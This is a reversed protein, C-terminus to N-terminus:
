FYFAFKGAWRETAFLRAYEVGAKIVFLKVEAGILLEASGRTATGENNSTYQPAFAVVGDAKMDGSAHLLGLGVYPAVIKFDYGALVTLGHVWGDYDYTANVGNVNQTADVHAQTSQAKIALGIPLPFLESVTWKVGLSYTHVHFSSNGVRPLGALEVTLGFPVSLAGSLEAGPLSRLSADPEASRVLRDLNPTKTTTGVLGVEFGFLHGLTSHGSVSTHTFDASLDDTVRAFDGPTLDTLKFNQARASPASALGALMVFLGLARVSVLAQM